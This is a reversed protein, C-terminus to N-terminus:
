IIDAFQRESRHFFAAGAFFVVLAFVSAVLVAQASASVYGLAGFRFMELVPSMPNLNVILKYAAPVASVPYAIPSAWTLFQLIVPIVYKVDRYRVNLAAAWMGIGLGLLSAVALAWPIWLIAIGPWIHFAICFGILLLTSVAFDLYVAGLVSLPLVIRPFYIKSVLGANGVMVDSCRQVIQAFLNWILLGAFSFVFYPIRSDALNIHAVKGFIFTFLGAGVLPQLVVWAAGIATQRYRLKVDRSALTALLDRYEVVERWPVARWGRTAQLTVLPVQAADETM